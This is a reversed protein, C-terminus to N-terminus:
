KLIICRDINLGLPPPPYPLSLLNQCSRKFFIWNGVGPVFYNTLIGVRLLSLHDTDKLGQQLPDYVVLIGVRPGDRVILIGVRHVLRVILNGHNAWGWGGGRPSLM